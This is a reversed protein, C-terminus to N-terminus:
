RVALPKLIGVINNLFTTKGAGNAGIFCVIEKKNLEFNVDWLIQIAGYGANIGITKLLTNSGDAEYGGQCVKKGLYAEIVAPNDCVQPSGECIKKGHHM